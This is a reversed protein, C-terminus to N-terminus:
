QFNALQERLSKLSNLIKELETKEEASVRLLLNELIEQYKLSAKILKEKAGMRKEASLRNVEGVARELYKEGKTLTSVGLAVKNGKILIEGAGIRKDAFLLLLDLKKSSQRTLWLWIRDRVMKIKYLPSDPLIGPYPLFYDVQSSQLSEKGALDPSTSAPEVTFSLTSAAKTPSVTKDISILLVGVALVLTIAVLATKKIMMKM